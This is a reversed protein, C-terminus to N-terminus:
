LLADKPPICKVIEDVNYEECIFDDVNLKTARLTGGCLLNRSLLREANLNKECIFDNDVEITGAAEIETASFDKGVYIPLYNPIIKGKCTFNEAVIIEVSDIDGECYLNETTIGAYADINKKVELWEAVLQQETILDGEVFIRGRLNIPTVIILNGNVIIDIAGKDLAAKVEQGFVEKKNFVVISGKRGM